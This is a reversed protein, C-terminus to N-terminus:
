RESLCASQELRMDGREDVVPRTDHGKGLRGAALDHRKPSNALLTHRHNRRPDVWAKRRAAPTGRVREDHSDATEHRDLVESTQDLDQGANVLLNGVELRDDNALPVLPGAELCPKALEPRVGIHM